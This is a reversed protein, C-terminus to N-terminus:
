IVTDSAEIVKELMNPESTELHTVHLTFVDTINRSMTPRLSSLSM